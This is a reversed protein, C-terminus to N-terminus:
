TRGTSGFGGTGRDTQGLSEYNVVEAQALYPTVVIQAIREHKAVSFDKLATVLIRIMGRYDSDVIGVCTFNGAHSSRPTIIGVYGPPIAVALGTAVRYHNGGAFELAECTSLDFGASHASGMTPIRVDEPKYGPFVSFRIPAAM